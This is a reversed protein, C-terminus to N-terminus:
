ARHATSICLGATVPTVYPVFGDCPGTATTWWPAYTALGSIGDGPSPNAPPVDPGLADGWWNCTAVVPGLTPTQM